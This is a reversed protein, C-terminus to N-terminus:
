NHLLDIISIIYYELHICDKNGKKLNKDCKVTLDLIKYVLNDNDKYLNSLYNFLFLFACM